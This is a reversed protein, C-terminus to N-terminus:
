RAVEDYAARTLRATEAWTMEAARAKGKMALTTANALAETIGRAIDAPEKPDVLVAAGGAVEETSTGRSTVVPTGHAMAEAVPLGFGERFSPYVFVAAGAYVAALDDPPLFGLARVRPAISSPITMEEGWGTPGVVVLDHDSDELQAFARVLGALNKRPEKTGVFLLYPKLLGLRSRVEALEAVAVPRVADAGLPVHRLRDTPIGATACDHLTALSSCLVLDAHRKILELSRRFLGTGRTTFMAPDHLFALDHVTVVFPKRTPPVLITTAHVVDVPRVTWEIRPLQVRAWLDYMLPAPLPLHRVPVGPIFPAVPPQRHWAVVGVLDLDPQRKLEEIVRCAAVATGGPVRHWCQEVTIAVRVEGNNGGPVRESRVTANQGRRPSFKRRVLVLGSVTL